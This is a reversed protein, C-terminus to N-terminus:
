AAIRWTAICFLAQVLIAIALTLRALVRDQAGAVAAIILNSALIIGGIIPLKYIERKDGILDVEGYANYHIAILDPLQEYRRWIGVAMAAVLLIAVAALAVSWRDTWIPRREGLWGHRNRL